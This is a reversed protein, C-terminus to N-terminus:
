RTKKIRDEPRYQIRSGEIIIKKGEINFEFTAINKAIYKKNGALSISFTKKTEDLIIGSKNIWSPDTCHRIIVTKGIFETKLYEKLQM